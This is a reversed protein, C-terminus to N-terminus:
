GQAIGYWRRLGDRLRAGGAEAPSPGSRPQGAPAPDPRPGGPGGAPRAPPVVTVEIAGITVRGPAERRPEDMRTQEDRGTARAPPPVLDPVAASQGGDGEDRAALPSPSRAAARRTGAPASLPIV